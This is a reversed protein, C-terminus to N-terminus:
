FNVISRRLEFPVLFAGTGFQGHGSQRGKFRGSHLRGQRAASVRSARAGTLLHLQELASSPPGSDDVDDRVVQSFARCEAAVVRRLEAVFEAADAVQMVVLWWLDTTEKGPAASSKM